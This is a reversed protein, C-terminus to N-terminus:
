DLICAVTMDIFVAVLSFTQRAQQDLKVAETSNIIQEPNYSTPALRLKSYTLAPYVRSQGDCPLCLCGCVSATVEPCILTM